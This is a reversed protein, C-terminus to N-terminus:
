SYAAFVNNCASCEHDDRTQCAICLGAVCSNGKNSRSSKNNCKSPSSSTLVALCPWLLCHLCALAAVSLLARGFCLWAFILLPVDLLEVFCHSRHKIWAVHEDSFLSMSTWGESVSRATAKVVLEVIRVTGKILRAGTDGKDGQFAKKNEPKTYSM